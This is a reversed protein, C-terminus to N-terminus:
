KTRRLNKRKKIILLMCVDKDLFATPLFSSSFWVREDGNGYVYMIIYSYFIVIFCILYFTQELFM